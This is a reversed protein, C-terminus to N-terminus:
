GNATLNQTTVPGNFNITGDFLKPNTGATLTIGHANNLATLNIGDGASLTLDTSNISGAGSMNFDNTMAFGITKGSVTNAINATRGTATLTDTASLNGSLNIDTGATLTYGEGGTTADAVDSTAGALNIAGGTTVM